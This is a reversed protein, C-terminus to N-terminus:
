TDGLITRNGHGTARGGPLDFRLDLSTPAVLGDPQCFRRDLNIPDLFIGVGLCKCCEVKWRLEDRPQAM